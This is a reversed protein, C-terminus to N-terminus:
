RDNEFWSTQNDPSEVPIEPAPITITSVPGTKGDRRARVAVYFPDVDDPIATTYGGPTRVSGSQRL